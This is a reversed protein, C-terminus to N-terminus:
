KTSPSKVYNPMGCFMCNQSVSTNNPIISNNRKCKGCKFITPLQCISHHNFNTKQYLMQKRQDM